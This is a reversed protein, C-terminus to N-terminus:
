FIVVVICCLFRSLGKLVMVFLLRKWLCLVLSLWSCVKMFIMGSFLVVLVGVVGFNGLFGVEFCGGRRM